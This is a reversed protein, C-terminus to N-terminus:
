SKIRSKQKSKQYQLSENVIVKFVKDSVISPMNFQKATIIHKRKLEDIRAQDVIKVGYRKKLQKMKGSIIWRKHLEKMINKDIRDVKVRLKKLEKKAKDQTKLRTRIM